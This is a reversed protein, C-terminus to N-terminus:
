TQKTHKERWLPWLISWDWLDWLANSLYRVIYLKAVSIHVNRNCFPAIHSIPSTCQPIQPAPRYYVVIWQVVAICFAELVNVNPRLGYRWVAVLYLCKIDQFMGGGPQTYILFFSSVNIPWACHWYPIDGQHGNRSSDVQYGTMYYLGQLENGSWAGTSKM